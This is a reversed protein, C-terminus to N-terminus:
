LLNWDHLCKFESLNFVEEGTLQSEKNILDVTKKVLSTASALTKVGLKEFCSGDHDVLCLSDKLAWAFVIGNNDDEWVYDPIEDWSYQDQDDGKRGKVVIKTSECVSEIVQRPSVGNLVKTLLNNIDKAVNMVDSASSNVNQFHNHILWSKSM